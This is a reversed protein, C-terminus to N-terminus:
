HYAKSRWNEKMIQITNENIRCMRAFLNWDSVLRRTSLYKLRHFTSEPSTHGAAAGRVVGVNMALTFFSRSLCNRSCYLYLLSSNV